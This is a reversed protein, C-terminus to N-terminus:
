GKGPVFMLTVLAFGFLVLLLVAKDEFAEMVCLLRVADELEENLM